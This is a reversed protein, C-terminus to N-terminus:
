GRWRPAPWVAALLALAKASGNAPMLVAGDRWASVRSRGAGVAHAGAVAKVERDLRMGAHARGFRAMCETRGALRPKIGAAADVVGDGAVAAAVGIEVGREEIALLQDGAAGAIAAIMEAQRMHVDVVSGVSRGPSMTAVLSPSTATVAMFFLTASNVGTSSSRAMGCLVRSFSAPMFIMGVAIPTSAALTIRTALRRGRAVVIAASLERSLRGSGRRAVAVVTLGPLEIGFMQVLGPLGHQAPADILFDAQPENPGTLKPRIGSYDPALSGDPLGPWYTRIREYFLTPARPMSTTIRTPRGMGRGARLAHPRGSRADCARRARRRDADSLDAPHLRAQRRLQFLQGQGAGAAAGAGGSLRGDHARRSARRLGRLQGRRRLRFEGGDGGFTVQWQGDKRAAGLVPTNFAIAGGADELDGRLALMYAHGDIIGTEPSHLAGICSLEPELARAANAGIMELGEVRQHPGAGRHGRDEDLEAENTAVILKGCKRHPVGHAACFEYLMRRGAVCHRGRLTGTPYYMGGHIVESNRSSIGTGIANAAEAVVVDHGKRAAARAVALGVVGAGIVLVQM